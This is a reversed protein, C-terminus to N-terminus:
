EAWLEGEPIPDSAHTPLTLTTASTSSLVIIKREDASALTYNSGKVERTRFRSRFLQTSWRRALGGALVGLLTGEAGADALQVESINEETDAM